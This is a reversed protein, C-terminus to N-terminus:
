RSNRIQPCARLLEGIRRSTGDRYFWSDIIILRPKKNCIVTNLADNKKGTVTVDEFGMKELWAKFEAHLEAAGTVALIGAMIEGEVILNTRACSCPLFLSICGQRITKGKKGGGM